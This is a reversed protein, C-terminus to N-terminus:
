TQNASRDRLIVEVSDLLPRPAPDTRTSWSCAQSGRTWWVQSGFEGSLLTGQWLLFLRLPHFKLDICCLTARPYVDDFFALPGRHFSCITFHYICIFVSLHHFPDMLYKGWSSNTTLIVLCYITPFCRWLVILFFISITFFRGDSKRPVSLLISKM